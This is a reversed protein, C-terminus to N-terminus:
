DLEIELRCPSLSFEHTLTLWKGERESGAKTINVMAELYAVEYSIMTIHLHLL